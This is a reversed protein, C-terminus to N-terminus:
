SLFCVANIYYQTQIALYDSTYRKKEKKLLMIGITTMEAIVTIIDASIATQWHM